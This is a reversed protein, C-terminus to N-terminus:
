RIGACDTVKNAREQTQFLVCQCYCSDVRFSYQAVFYYYYSVHSQEFGAIRTALDLLTGKGERRTRLM